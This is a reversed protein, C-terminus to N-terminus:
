VLRDHRRAIAMAPLRRGTKPEEAIQQNVMTEVAVSGSPRPRSPTVVSRTGALVLTHIGKRQTRDRRPKRLARTSHV